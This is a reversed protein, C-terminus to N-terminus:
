EGGFETRMSVNPIGLNTLLDVVGAVTEWSVTKDARLFVAVDPNEQFAQGIATTLAGLGMPEQDLFIAGEADVEIVRIQEPDFTPDPVGGRPLDLNMGQDLLPTTIMFIILLVFALDLLPTVNIDSLTVLHNRDSFRRMADTRGPM